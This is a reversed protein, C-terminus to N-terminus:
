QSRLPWVFEVKDGLEIATSLESDSAYPRRDIRVAVIRFEAFDEVAEVPDTAIVQQVRNAQSVPASAARWRMTGLGPLDLELPKGPAICLWLSFHDFAQLLRTGTEVLRDFESSAMSAEATESWESQLRAQQTLFAQCAQLEERSHDGSALGREALDCFHRSVWFGGLLSSQACLDVSQRWFATSDVLSMELFDRPGDGQENRSPSWARWGDDHSRLTALFEDRDIRLAAWDLRVTDAIAAALRAHDPQTMAAWGHEIARVIM